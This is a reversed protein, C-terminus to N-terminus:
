RYGVFATCSWPNEHNDKDELCECHSARRRNPSVDQGALALALKCAAPQTPANADAHAELARAAGPAALAAFCAASLAYAPLRM